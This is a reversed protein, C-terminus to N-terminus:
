LVGPSRMAQACGLHVVTIDADTGAAIVRGRPVGTEWRHTRYKADMGKGEFPALGSEGPALLTLLSGGVMLPTCLENQFLSKHSPCTAYSPM